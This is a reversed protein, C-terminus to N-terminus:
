PFVLQISHVRIPHSQVGYQHDFINMSTEEERRLARLACKAAGEEIRRLIIDAGSDFSSRPLCLTRRNILRMLRMNEDVVVVSVIAVWECLHRPASLGLYM